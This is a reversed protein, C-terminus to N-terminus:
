SSEILGELANRAKQLSPSTRMAVDPRWGTIGDSVFNILTANYLPGTSRGSGPRPVLDSRIRSRSSRRALNVMTEKPELLSDPEAPVIAVRVGLFAAIGERDALLWSEVERVAVRFSM